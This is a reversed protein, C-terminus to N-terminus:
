LFAPQPSTGGGGGQLMAKIQQTQQGRQSMYSDVCGQAVKSQGTTEDVQTGKIKYPLSSVGSRSASGRSPAMQLIRVERQGHEYPISTPDYGQAQGQGMQVQGQGQIQGQGQVQNQNGYQPQNERSVPMFRRTVLPDERQMPPQLPIQQQQQQPRMPSGGQPYQPQPHQQPAVVAQGTKQLYSQILFQVSEVAHEGTYKKDTQRDWLTPVRDLWQPNGPTAADKTAFSFDPGGKLGQPILALAKMSPPDNALAYLIFRAQNLGSVQGVPQQAAPGQNLPTFGTAPQQPRSVGMTSIGGQSGRLQHM